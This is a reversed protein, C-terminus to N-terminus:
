GRDTGVKEEHLSESRDAGLLTHHAILDVTVLVSSILGEVEDAVHVLANHRLVLIEADVGLLVEVGADEDVALEVGLHLSTRQVELFGHALNDHFVVPLLLGDAV